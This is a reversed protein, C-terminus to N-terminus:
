VEAEKRCKHSCYTGKEGQIGQADPVEPSAVESQCNNCLLPNM